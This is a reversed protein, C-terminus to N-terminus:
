IVDRMSSVLDAASFAREVALLRPTSPMPKGAINTTWNTWPKAQGLTFNAGLFNKQSYVTISCQLSGATLAHLPLLKAGVYRRGTSNQVTRYRHHYYQRQPLSGPIFTCPPGMLTIVSLYYLVTRVRM